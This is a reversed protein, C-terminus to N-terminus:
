RPSNQKAGVMLAYRSWKQSWCRMLVAAAPEAPTWKLKIQLYDEIAHARSMEQPTCLSVALGSMGAVVLVAIRHM